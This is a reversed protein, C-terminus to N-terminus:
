GPGILGRGQRAQRSVVVVAAVRADGVAMTCEGQNPSRPCTRAQGPGSVPGLVSTQLLFAHVGEPQRALVEEALYDVIYRDDGAFGALFDAVDDRGQMSLAALQLAAIWGETRGELAAMDRATLQLGMIDNLYAAAEDATFRLEAARIEALEGRARM